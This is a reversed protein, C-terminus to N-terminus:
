IHALFLFVKYGKLADRTVTAAPKELAIGCLRKLDVNSNERIKQDKMGPVRCEDKYEIACEEWVVQTLFLFMWLLYIPPQLSADAFEKM